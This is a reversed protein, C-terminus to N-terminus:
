DFESQNTIQIFCRTLTHGLLAIGSIRQPHRLLDIRRQDENGNKDLIRRRYTSITKDSLILDAVARTYTRGDDTAFQTQVDTTM